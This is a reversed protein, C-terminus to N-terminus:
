RVGYFVFILWATVTLWSLAFLFALIRFRSPLHRAQRGMGQVVRVDYFGALGIFLILTGFFIAKLSVRGQDVAKWHNLILLFLGLGIPFLSLKWHAPQRKPASELEQEELSAKREVTVAKDKEADPPSPDPGTARGGRLCAM